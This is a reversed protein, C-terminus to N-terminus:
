GAMRRQRPPLLVLIGGLCMIIGGWWFWSVLPNVYVKFSAKQSQDMDALILYLDHKWTSYIAVETSLQEAKEYWIRHPTLRVIGRGNRALDVTAKVSEM